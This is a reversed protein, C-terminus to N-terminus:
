LRALLLGALKSSTVEICKEILGRSQCIEHKGHAGAESAHPRVANVM